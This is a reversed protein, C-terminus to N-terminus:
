SADARVMSSRIRLYEAASLLCDRSDRFKGIGINCPHCLLGRVDGSAHDHDVVLDAVLRCIACVGGQEILLSEYAERKLGYLTEIRQWKRCERCESKLGDKCNGKEFSDPALVKLCLRCAKDAKPGAKLRSYRLRDYESVCRKCWCATPSARSSRACYSVEM